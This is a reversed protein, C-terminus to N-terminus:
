HVSHSGDGDSTEADDPQQRDENDDVLIVIANTRSTRVPPNLPDDGVHVRKPAAYGLISERRRIVKLVLDAADKDGGAALPQMRSLIQDMRELDVRRAEDATEAIADNLARLEKTVLRFAHPKSIELADGIQQFSAGNKRLELALLAKERSKLRRPSTPPEPTKRSPAM